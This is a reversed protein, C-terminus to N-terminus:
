KMFRKGVDNNYMDISSDRVTDNIRSAVYRRYPLLGRIRHHHRKNTRACVFFIVTGHQYPSIHILSGEYLVQLPVEGGIDHGTKERVVM